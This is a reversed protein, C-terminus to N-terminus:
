HYISFKNGSIENPSSDSYFILVLSITCPFIIRVTYSYDIFIYVNFTFMIAIYNKIIIAALEKFRM